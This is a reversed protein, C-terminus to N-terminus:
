SRKGFVVFSIAAFSFAFLFIWFIYGGSSFLNEFAQTALLFGSSPTGDSGFIKTFGFDVKGAYDPVAAADLADSITGYEVKSDAIAGQILEADVAGELPLTETTGTSDSVGDKTVTVKVPWTWAYTGIECGVIFNGVLCDYDHVGEENTPPQYTSSTAGSIPFGDVYWQYTLTGGDLSYANCVLPHAYAGIKYNVLYEYGQTSILPASAVSNGSWVQEQSLGSNTNLDSSMGLPLYTVDGSTIANTVWEPYASVIDGETSVGDAVLGDSAVIDEQYFGDPYLPFSYFTAANNRYEGIIFGKGYSVVGESSLYGLECFTHYGSLGACSSGFQVYSDPTLFYGSVGESAYASLMASESIYINGANRGSFASEFNSVFQGLPFNLNTYPQISSGTVIRILDRYKEIAFFSVSATSNRRSTLLLSGHAAQNVLTYIDIQKWFANGLAIDTGMTFGTGGFQTESRVSLVGSDFLWQRIWEVMQSDAMYQNYGDVATTRIEIRDGDTIFQGAAKMADFCNNVVNNFAVGTTTDPKLGIGIIAAAIVPIAYMAVVELAVAEAKIPTMAFVLAFVLLVAILRVPVSRTM